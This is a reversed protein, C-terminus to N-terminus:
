LSSREMPAGRQLPSQGIGQQDGPAQRADPRPRRRGSGAGGARHGPPHGSAASTPCPAAASLRNKRGAPAAQATLLDFVAHRFPFRGFKRAYRPDTFEIGALTVDCGRERLVGAMAEAVRLSQQTHTYFVFLASPKRLSNM